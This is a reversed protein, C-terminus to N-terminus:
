RPALQSESQIKPNSQISPDLFPNALMWSLRIHKEDTFETIGIDMGEHGAMPADVYNAFLRDWFSFMGGYNSNTEEPIQSHHTRHTKDPQQRSSLKNRALLIM